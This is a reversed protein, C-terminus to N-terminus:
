YIRPVLKCPVFKKYVNMSIGYKESTLREIRRIRNLLICTLFLPYFWPIPSSFGALLPQAYAMLLDGLYNPHRVVGWLGGALLRQTHPGSITRVGAFSPHGPHRRFLDKQSNSSRYIWYGVFFLVISFALTITQHINLSGDAATLRGVDPRSSLYSAAISYLFPLLLAESIKLYGMSEYRVEFTHCWTDEFAFFDLVWIFHMVALTVLAPSVRGFREWQSLIYASELLVLGVSAPRFLVMKWDLGFWRPRVSRGSWFDVLFGGIKGKISAPSRSTRGSTMYALVSLVIAINGAAALLSMYYKSLLFTPRLTSLFSWECFEAMSFLGIFFVLTFLDNFRHPASSRSVSQSGARYGFPIFRAIVFHLLLYIFVFAHCRYDLYVLPNTPWLVGALPRSPSRLLRFDTTAGSVPAIILLNLWYISPLLIIIGLFAAVPSPCLKRLLSGLWECFSERPAHQNMEDSFSESITSHVKTTEIKQIIRQSFRSPNTERLVTTTRTRRDGSADPAPKSHKVFASRRGKVSPSSSESESSSSSQRRQLKSESAPTRSRM